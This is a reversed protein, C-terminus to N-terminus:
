SGSRAGESAGAGRAEPDVSARASGRDVQTDDTNAYATVEMSLSIEQYEPKTWEM